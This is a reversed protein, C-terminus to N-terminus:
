LALNEKSFVDGNVNIKVNEYPAAVRRYLELKVCELAGILANINAYNLGWALLCNDALDTVLFNFEGANAPIENTEM